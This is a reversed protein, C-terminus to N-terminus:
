KTEFSGAAGVYTGATVLAARADRDDLLTARWFALSLARVIRIQSADRAPDAPPAGRVARRPQGGFIMHDAGELNLLAKGGPPMGTFPLLRLPPEVGLGLAVKGDATGTISFFPRVIAAFQSVAEADRASPSFAIFARPRPDALRAAQERNRRRAEFQQGAVAQTTIAGFSHGSMGIRSLDATALLADGAAQRRALTDLVFKVDDTRALLQEPRTGARITRLSADEGKWIAEDSGPHQLHVVIFGHSAWHEAWFTGADISGGLGHSFLLVAHPGPGAPLRLRIPLKRDRTPDTWVQDVVRVDFSGAAEFTSAAPAPRDAAPAAAWPLLLLALAARQVTARLTRLLASAAPPM